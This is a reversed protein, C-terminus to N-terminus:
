ADVIDAVEQRRLRGGFPLLGAPELEAPTISVAPQPRKVTEPTTIFQDFLQAAELVSSPRFGPQKDLMRMVFQEIPAPLDARFDSPPPPSVTRQMKALTLPDRSIFPLRGTLMQYLLVGLSYIDARHDPTSGLTLQEPSTYRPVGPFRSSLPVSPSSFAKAIAFDVIKVIEQGDELSILMLNSPKLDCHLIERGHAHALASAIQSVLVAIREYDLRRGPVLEDALTRGDLWEMVVYVAGTSMGGVDFVNVINDHCLRWSSEAERQLHALMREHNLAGKPQLLKFAVHKKVRMHRAHYVAGMSGVGALAEIGYKGRIIHGLLDYPDGNAHFTEDSPRRRSGPQPQEGYSLDVNM